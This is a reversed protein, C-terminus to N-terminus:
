RKHLAVSELHQQLREEHKGQLLDLLLIPYYLLTAPKHTREPTSTAVTQSIYYNVLITIKLIHFM